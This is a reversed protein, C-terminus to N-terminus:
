SVNKERDLRARRRRSTDLLLEVLAASAQPSLTPLATPLVFTLGEDNRPRLPVVNSGPASPMSETDSAAPVTDIPKMVARHWGSMYHRCLPQPDKDGVGSTDCIRLTPARRNM